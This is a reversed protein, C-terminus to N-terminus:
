KKDSNKRAYSLAKENNEFTAKALKSYVDSISNTKDIFTNGSKGTSASDFVSYAIGSEEASNQLAMLFNGSHTSVVIKLGIEKQLALLFDAFINQWDPHLYVEPEDLLLYTNKTLQRNELLIDFLVFLKMGTALNMIYIGDSGYTYKSHGNKKLNKKIVKKLIADYSRKGTATILQEQFSSPKKRELKYILDIYHPVSGTTFSDSDVGDGDRDSYLFDDNSYLDLVMPDDYYIVDCDNTLKSSIKASNIRKDAILASFLSEKGEALSIKSPENKDCGFIQSNFENNLSDFLSLKFYNEVQGMKTLTELCKSCWSLYLIKISPNGVGSHRFSSRSFAKEVDEKKAEKAITQAASIMAIWESPMRVRIPTAGTVFPRILSTALVSEGSQTKETQQPAFIPFYGLVDGFSNFVYKSSALAVNQSLDRGSYLASYLSKLMTSKGTGNFGTLITLGSVSITAKSICGLNEVCLEM